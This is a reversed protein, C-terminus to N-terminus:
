RSDRNKYKHGKKKNEYVSPCVFGGGCVFLCLKNIKLCQEEFSKCRVKIQPFQSGYGRDVHQSVSMFVALM